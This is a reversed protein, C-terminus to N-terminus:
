PRTQKSQPGTDREAGPDSDTGFFTGAKIAAAAGQKRRPILALELDLERALAVLSSVRLDGRSKAKSLGVPTLGAAAALQARSLGRKGAVSLLQDILQRVPKTM